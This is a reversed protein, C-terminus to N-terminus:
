EFYAEIEDDHLAIERYDTGVRVMYIYFVQGSRPSIWYYDVVEGIQSSYLDIACERPSAQQGDVPKIVVKQGITYKPAM